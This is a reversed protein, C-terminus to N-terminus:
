ILREFLSANLNYGDGKETSLSYNNIKPRLQQHDGILILHKTEPTMATLMHAELIEGAEELLVISPSTHRIDKSYIATATTTCGIFWKLKLIERNKKGLTAGLRSQCKDFLAIRVAM